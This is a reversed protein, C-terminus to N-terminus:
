CFIFGLHHQAFFYTHPAYGPRMKLPSSFGRIFVLRCVMRATAAVRDTNPRGGRMPVRLIINVRIM